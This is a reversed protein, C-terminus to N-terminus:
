SARGAAAISAGHRPRRRGVWQVHFEYMGAFTGPNRSEFADWCCLDTLAADGPHQQRFRDITRTDSFTFGLFRLAHRDLLAAIAPLTFRHEQAHHLLDRCESMSHFDTSWLVPSEGRELLTQRQERIRDPCPQVGATAPPRVWEIARRATESYLGLHLVGGPALVDILSRLGAEPDAMHHLVGSCEIVDFSEDLRGADLVDGLVFEVNGIGLSESMRAAYGLSAGCFDLGTVVNSPDLNAALTLLQRGTGCGAVLLNVPGDFREPDNLRAGSAGMLRRYSGPRPAHVFARWRPYPNAEYQDRVRLSVADTVPGLSRIRSRLARERAPQHFAREALQRLLAPWAAPAIAAMAEADLMAELPRVMACLALDTAHATLEACGIVQAPLRARVSELWILEEDKVRNVYENGQARLALAHVLPELSDDLPGAVALQLLSARVDNLFLELGPHPLRLTALAALLLDDAALQWLTVPHDDVDVRYRQALLQAVKQELAHHPTDQRNLVYLLLAVNEPRDAIRDIGVLCQCIAYRVAANTAALNQQLLHLNRLASDYDRQNMQIRILLSLANAHDVTLPQGPAHAHLLTMLAAVARDPARAELLARAQQLAAHEAM